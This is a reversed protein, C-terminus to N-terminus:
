ILVCVKIKNVYSIAHNFEVPGKGREGAGPTGPGPPGGTKPVGAGNTQIRQQQATQAQAQAQAQVAMQQQRAIEIAEQQGPTQAQYPGYVGEVSNWRQPQQQQEYYRPPQGPASAAPIGAQQLPM